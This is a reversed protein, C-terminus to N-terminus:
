HKKSGGPQKEGFLQYVNDHSEEDPNRQSIASRRMAALNDSDIEAIIQGLTQRRESDPEHAEMSRLRTILAKTSIPANDNLLSLVAVGILEDTLQENESSNM